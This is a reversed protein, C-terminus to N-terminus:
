YNSGLPHNPQSNKKELKNLAFNATAKGKYWGNEISLSVNNSQVGNDQWSSFSGM